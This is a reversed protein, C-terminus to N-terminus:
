LWRCRSGYRCGSTPDGCILARQAALSRPRGAAASSQSPHLPTGELHAESNTSYQDGGRRVNGDMISLM